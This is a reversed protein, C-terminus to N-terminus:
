RLVWICHHSAHRRQVKLAHPSPLMLAVKLTKITMEAQSFEQLDEGLEQKVEQLQQRLQKAREFRASFRCEREGWVGEMGGLSPGPKQQLGSPGEPKPQLKPQVEHQAEAHSGEAHAHNGGAHPGDAEARTSGSQAMHPAAHKQENHSSRNGAAPPVPGAAPQAHPAAHAHANQSSGSGAAPPAPGAAQQAHLQQGASPSPDGDHGEHPEHREHGAYLSTEAAHRMYGQRHARVEGGQQSVAGNTGDAKPGKEDDAGPSSGQPAHAHPHHLEPSAHRSIPKRPSPGLGPIEEKVVSSPAAHRLRKRPPTPSTADHEDAGHVNQPPEDDASEPTAPQQTSSEKRQARPPKAEQQQQPRPNGNAHQAQKAKPGRAPKGRGKGKRANFLASLPNQGAQKAEHQKEAAVM